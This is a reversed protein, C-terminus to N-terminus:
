GTTRASAEAPVDHRDDLSRRGVTAVLRDRVPQLRSPWRWACSRCRIGRAAAAHAPATGPRLGRPGRRAADTRPPRRPDRRRHAGRVRRPRPEADDRARRRRRPGRRGARLQLTAPDDLDAARADDRSHGVRAGAPDATGRRRPPGTRARAGRRRRRPPPRARIPVGHVLQHGRQAPRPRLAPRPGLVRRARARSARRSRRRPRRARAHRPCGLPCGVAGPPGRQARRRRRRRDDGAARDVDISASPSADCRTRFRRTSRM